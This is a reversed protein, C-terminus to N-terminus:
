DFTESIRCSISILLCKQTVIKQGACPIISYQNYFSAKNRRVDNFETDLIIKGSFWLGM